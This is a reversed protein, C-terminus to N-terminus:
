AAVAFSPRNDVNRVGSHHIRCKGGHTGELDVAYWLDPGAKSYFPHADAKMVKGGVVVGYALTVEIRTGRKFAM